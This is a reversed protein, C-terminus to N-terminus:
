TPSHLFESLLEECKSQLISDLSQGSIRQLFLYYDQTPIIEHAGQNYVMMFLFTLFLM